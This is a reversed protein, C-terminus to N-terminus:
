AYEAPGRSSRHGELVVMSESHRFDPISWIKELLVDRLHNQDRVQLRVSLDWRGAVMDVDTVEPVALLDAITEAIPRSQAVQIGVLVRMGLGLAAPDVDVRYGRIVGRSELRELRESIAGASMGIQRALARISMRADAHLLDLLQRDVADVPSLSSTMVGVELTPPKSCVNERPSV